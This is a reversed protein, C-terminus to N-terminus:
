GPELDRVGPHLFGGCTHQIDVTFAAGNNNAAIISETYSKVTHYYSQNIPIAIQSSELHAVDLGKLSCILVVKKSPLYKKVLSVAL